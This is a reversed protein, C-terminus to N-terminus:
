GGGNSCAKSLVTDNIRKELLIVFPSSYSDLGGGREDSGGIM